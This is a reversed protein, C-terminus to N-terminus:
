VGEVFDSIFDRPFRGFPCVRSYRFVGLHFLAVFVFRFSFEDGILDLSIASCRRLLRACIRGPFDSNELIIKGIQAGDWYRRLSM